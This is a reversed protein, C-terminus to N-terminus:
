ASGLLTGVVAARWVVETIGVAALPQQSLIRVQEEFGGAAVVLRGSGQALCVGDGVCRFEEGVASLRGLGAGEEVLCQLDVSVQIGAPVRGAGGGSQTCGSDVSADAPRAVAGALAPLCESVGFADDDAMHGVAVGVGLDGGAYEDRSAGDACM